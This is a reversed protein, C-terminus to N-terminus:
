YGLLKIEGTIANINTRDLNEKEDILSELNERDILENERDGSIMNEIITETLNLIESIIEERQRSM